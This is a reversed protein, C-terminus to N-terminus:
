ENYTFHKWYVFFGATLITKNVSTALPCGCDTLWDRVEGWSPQKGFGNDWTEPMLDFRFWKLHTGPPLVKPITVDAYIDGYQKPKHASISLVYLYPIPGFAEKQIAKDTDHIPMYCGEFARSTSTLAMCGLTFYDVGFGCHLCTPAIYFLDCKKCYTGLFEGCLLALPSVLWSEIRRIVSNKQTAPIQVNASFQTM